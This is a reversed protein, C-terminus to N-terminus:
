FFYSQVDKCWFSSAEIPVAHGVNPVVVDDDDVIVIDTSSHNSRLTEVMELVDGPLALVDYEGV